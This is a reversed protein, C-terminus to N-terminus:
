KKTKVKVEKGKNIELSMDVLKENGKVLVWGTATRVHRCSKDLAGIPFSSRGPKSDDTVAKKPAAKKVAPAAAKKVPAAKKPAAKKAVTSM